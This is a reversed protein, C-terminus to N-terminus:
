QSEGVDCSAKGKIDRHIVGSKHLFALGILSERVIIVAFREEIVNNKTAKMKLVFHLDSNLAM